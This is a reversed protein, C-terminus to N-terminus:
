KKKKQIFGVVLLLIVAGLTATVLSDVWKNKFAIGVLDFLWEGIFAGVVGIVIIGLINLGGKRLMLGALWGAVAGTLILVVVEELKM